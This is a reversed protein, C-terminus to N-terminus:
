SETPLGSAGCKAAPAAAAFYAAVPLAVSSCLSLLALWLM